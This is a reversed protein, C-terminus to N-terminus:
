HNTDANNITKSSLDSNEETGGPAGDAGYSIIEFDRGSTYNYVYDNGWPDKPPTEQLYPDPGWKNANAPREWLESLQQPYRGVDVKFLNMANKISSMDAKVREVRAKTGQSMVNVTVVAALMGIIAVVVMLEVLTFGQRRNKRIRM